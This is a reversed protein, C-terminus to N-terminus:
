AALKIGTVDELGRGDMALTHGVRKELEVYTRYLDPKLRAATRLDQQSAMICFVCSLRSMGAAYAPHPVQGAGAITSWVEPLKMDHIPLWDFWQRGAKSNRENFRWAKQKSRAASEEARIGMCNVIMGRFRPNAALYRRVEREIPGRKLDSTCQRNTPSPWMGREEVMQLLTRRSRCVILPLDGITARIHDVNGDWEVEGLDAHIVLIQDDPVRERLKVLMAQSDKGASHNCVFLGGSMIIEDIIAQMTVEM